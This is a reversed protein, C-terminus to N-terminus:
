VKILINILFRLFYSPLKQVTTFNTTKKEGGYFTNDFNVGRQFFNLQM